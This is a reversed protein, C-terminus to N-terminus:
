GKLECLSANFNVCHRLSLVRDWCKFSGQGSLCHAISEGNQFVPTLFLLVMAVVWGCVFQALPTKAGALMM